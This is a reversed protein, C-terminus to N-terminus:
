IKYDIPSTSRTMFLTVQLEAASQLLLPSFFTRIVSKICIKYMINPGLFTFYLKKAKKKRIRILTEKASETHLSSYAEEIPRNRTRKSILNLAPYYLIQGM